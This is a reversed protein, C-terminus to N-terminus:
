MNQAARLVIAVRSSPVDSVSEGRDETAPLDRALNFCAQAMALWRGRVNPLDSQEAM